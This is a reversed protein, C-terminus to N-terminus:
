PITRKRPRRRAIPWDSASSGAIIGCMRMLMESSSASVARAAARVEAHQQGPVHQDAQGEGDGADGRAEVADIRLQLRGGHREASRPQAHQPLDDQRQDCGADDRRQM